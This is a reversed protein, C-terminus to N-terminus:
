KYIRRHAFVYHFIHTFGELINQINRVFGIMKVQIKMEDLVLGAWYDQEKLGQREAEHKCWAITEQNWGPKQYV